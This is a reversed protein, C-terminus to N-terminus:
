LQSIFLHLSLIRRGVCQLSGNQLIDLYSKDIETQMHYLKIPSPAGDGRQTYDRGNGQPDTVTSLTSTM